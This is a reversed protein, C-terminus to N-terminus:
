TVSLMELHVIEKGIDVVTKLSICGRYGTRLDKSFQANVHLVLLLDSDSFCTFMKFFLGQDVYYQMQVYM